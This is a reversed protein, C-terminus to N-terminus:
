SSSLKIEGAGGGHMAAISGAVGRPKDSSTHIGARIQLQLRTLDTALATACDRAVKTQAFSAVVGDGTFREIRGGFARVINQAVENHLYIREAWERHSLTAAIGTSNVIDTALYARPHRRFLSM